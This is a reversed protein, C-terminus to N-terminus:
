LDSPPVECSHFRLLFGALLAVAPHGLFDAWVRVLNGEPCTVDAFSALLMLTVPLLVTILTMGFGPSRGNENRTSSTLSPVAVTVRTVIYRAFLPGALVATPM